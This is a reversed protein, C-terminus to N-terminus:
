YFAIIECGKIWQANNLNFIACTTDIEGNELSLLTNHLYNDAENSDTTFFHFKM